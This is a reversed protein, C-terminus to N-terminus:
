PDQPVGLEMWEEQTPPTSPLQRIMSEWRAKHTGILLARNNRLAETKSVEGIEKRELRASLSRYEKGLPSEYVWQSITHYQNKLWGAPIVPQLLLIIALLTLFSSGQRRRKRIEHPRYAGAGIFCSLILLLGSIVALRVPIELLLFFLILISGIAWVRVIPVWGLAIGPVGSIILALGEILIAWFVFPLPSVFAAVAGPLILVGWFWATWLVQRKLSHYVMVGGVILLAGGAVWPHLIFLLSVIPVAIATGIIVVMWPVAIESLLLLVETILRMM